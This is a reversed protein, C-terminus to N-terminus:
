PESRKLVLTEINEATTLGRAHSMQDLSSYPGIFVRFVRGNDGQAESIEPELGLLILEARRRMADEHQRFSGAQLIYQEGPGSPPPKSVDAAPEVTEEEVQITQAPLLTYFDFRPKPTEDERPVTAVAQPTGPEPITALWAIFSLFVGTMVGGLYLRLGRGGSTSDGTNRGRASTRRNVKGKKGKAFDQAV